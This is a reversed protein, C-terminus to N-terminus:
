AYLIDALASFEEAAKGHPELEFVALGESFSRRYATRLCLRKDLVTLGPLAQLADRAEDSERVAPNTDARNLFAVIQPPKRKNDLVGAVLYLFRQTSWIDAQSPAVPLLIRDALALVRKMATMNATGVDILVEEGDNIKNEQYRNRVLLSPSFGEEKRVEVADSLTSQPDLDYLAVNKGANALWLGLNFTVTSKGSGGKLSGVVTIM